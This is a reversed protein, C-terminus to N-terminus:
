YGGEMMRRAGAGISEPEPEEEDSKEPDKVPIGDWASICLGDKKKTIEMVVEFTEGDELEPVEFDEPPKVYNERPKKEAKAPKPKKM